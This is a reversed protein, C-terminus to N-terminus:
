KKVQQIFIDELKISEPKMELLGASVAVRAVESDVDKEISVLYIGQPLSRVHVV